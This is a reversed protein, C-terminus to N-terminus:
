VLSYLKKEFEVDLNVDLMCYPEFLSPGTNVLSILAAAQGKRPSYLTVLISTDRKTQVKSYISIVSDIISSKSALSDTSWMSVCSAASSIRPKRLSIMGTPLTM